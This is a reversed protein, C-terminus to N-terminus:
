ARTYRNTVQDNQSINLTKLNTLVRLPLMAEDSIGGGCMQYNACACVCVCMLKDQADDHAPCRCARLTHMHMDVRRGDYV